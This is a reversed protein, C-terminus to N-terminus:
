EDEDQVYVCIDKGEVVVSNFLYELIFIWGQEQEGVVVLLGFLSLLGEVCEVLGFGFTNDECQRIFIIAMSEEVSKGFIQSDVGVIDWGDEVKTSSVVFIKVVM